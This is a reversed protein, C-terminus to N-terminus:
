EPGEDLGRVQMRLSGAISALAGDILELDRLALQRPTTVDQDDLATAVRDFLSASRLYSRQEVERGQQLAEIIEGASTSLLKAATALDAGAQEPLPTSSRTDVVLNRAYYRSATAAYWFKDRLGGGSAGPLRLRSRSPSTASELAQYAVDLRRAAARLERDNDPSCLQGVALDVVELLATLHERTAVAVVHGIRIPLVFAVTLATVGAGVATEALRELLLSDSFENLQVYLQSMMVTIGITMFAYSVRLLYLGFFLAVLVVLVSIRTHDALLHGMVAGVFVGIVTGVVRLVSKRIQETANHAGLFTVFAAIVAWYFRQPSVLSGVVIAATVAVAMQISVRAYPELRVRDIWRNGRETSATASVDRSGPLWGGSLTVAPDFAGEDPLFSPNPESRISRLVAAYGTTSTCFRHLLIQTTRPLPTRHARETPSDRDAPRESQLQRRIEEAAVEAAAPDHDGVALLVGRVPRLLDAPLELGALREAFRAINTLSLEADFVRQHLAAATAGHPLAAPDALQADIMLATENLRILLGHLRRAETRDDPHDVVTLAAAALRGSRVAFSRRMRRLALRRSPYFLTFQAAIAVASGVAIIGILWGLDSIDVLRALFFGFFDGMFLLQGALFGRAGFRRLYGGAALVVVLSALAALHFPALALGIAMGAIMPLPMLLLSILLERPRPFMPGAFASIMGIVAGVMIAMVVAAHHQAAVAAAQEATLRGPGPDVQLAGTLRVFLWECLMAAAISAVAQAATRLRTLGPDSALFREWWETPLPRAM